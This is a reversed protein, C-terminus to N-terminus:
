CQISLRYGRVDTLSGVSSPLANLPATTVIKGVYFKDELQPVASHFTLDTLMTLFHSSFNTQQDITFNYYDFVGGHSATGAWFPQSAALSQLNVPVTKGSVITSAEYAIVNALLSETSGSLLIM